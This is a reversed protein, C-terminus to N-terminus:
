KVEVYWTFQKLTMASTMSHLAKQCSFRRQLTISTLLTSETGLSLSHSVLSSSLARRGSWSRTKTCFRKITKRRLAYRSSKVILWYLPMVGNHRLHITSPLKALSQIKASSPSVTIVPQWIRREILSNISAM